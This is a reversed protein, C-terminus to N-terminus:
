PAVFELHVGPLLKHLAEEEQPSFANNMLFIKKLQKMQRIGPHVRSLNCNTLSLIQLQPLASLQQFTENWDMEPNSSLDLVELSQIGSICSPLHILHNNSLVLARLKPIRPLYDCSKEWEFHPMSDLWLIELNSFQTIEAPLTEINQKSLNLFEVQDPQTLAEQINSYEHVRFLWFAFFLLSLLGVAILFSRFM